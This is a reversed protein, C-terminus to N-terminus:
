TDDWITLTPQLTALADPLGVRSPDTRWAAQKKIRPKWVPECGGKSIFLAFLKFEGLEGNLIMERAQRVLPYGTYNHSVAFVANSQDVIKALQEAQELDFTMPKDCVVHFGAEVAAKAVEFHAHNPTTVSVFDIREGVPLKAEAALMEQYSGYARSAPVDYDPASAKSREPNSSFAGAAVTARNDLCAAISHVRGIFSGSGGGVLGMKLKRNLPGNTMLSNRSQFLACLFLDNKLM